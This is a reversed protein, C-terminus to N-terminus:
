ARALTGKAAADFIRRAGERTLEVPNGGASPDVLAMEVIREPAGVPAGLAILTHPVGVEQRLNLVWVLFADFDAALGLYAAARAIRESIAARNHELVYPMFVANTM